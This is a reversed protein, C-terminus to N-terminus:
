TNGGYQPKAYNGREMARADCIPCLRPADRRNKLRRELRRDGTWTRVLQWGIGREICVALMRAGNGIQHRELRADLDDTYGMYHKAHVLPSNLHLLYITM